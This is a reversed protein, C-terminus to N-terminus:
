EDNDQNFPNRGKKHKKVRVYPVTVPEDYRSLMAALANQQKVIQM